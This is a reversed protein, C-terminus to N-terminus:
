GRTPAGIPQVAMNQKYILVLLVTCLYNYRWSKSQSSFANECCVIVKLILTQISYDISIVIVIYGMRICIKM